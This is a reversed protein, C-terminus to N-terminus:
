LELMLRELAVRPGVNAVLHRRFRELAVMQCAVLDAAKDGSALHRLLIRQLRSAWAELDMKQDVLKKAMVLRDFLSMDLAQQASEDIEKLGSAVAEDRILNLATGPAGAALEAVREAESPAVEHRSTLFDAIEPTPVPSFYLTALRSCVTPLLSELNESVLIFITRPPPEEILKLLANQAEVTLADAEDIMVVRSGAAYYPSLSLTHSLGRVQEITISARGEPRIEIFDPFSGSAFQRCATCVRGEDGRCNLQRALERAATAKGVGKPGHFIYGGAVDQLAAALQRETFHHLLPKM